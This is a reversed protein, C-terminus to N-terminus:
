WPFIHMYIIRSLKWCKVACLSIVVLIFIPIWITPLDPFFFYCTLFTLLGLFVSLGYSIYMAGLFYGPEREFHYGCNSCKKHMEPMQFLHSRHEFVKTKGCRPCLELAIKQLRNKNLEAQSSHMSCLYLSDQKHFFAQKRKIKITSQQNVQPSSTARM